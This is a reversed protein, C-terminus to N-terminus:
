MLTLMINSLETSKTFLLNPARSEASTRLSYTALQISFYKELELDTIDVSLEINIFIFICKAICLMITYKLM